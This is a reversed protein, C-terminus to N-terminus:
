CTAGASRLVPAAASEVVLVSVTPTKTGRRAASRWTDTRGADAAAATGADAVAHLGVWGIAVNAIHM